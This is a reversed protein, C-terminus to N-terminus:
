LANWNCWNANVTARVITSVHCNSLAIKVPSDQKARVSTCRHVLAHAREVAVVHADDHPAIPDQGNLTANAGEM